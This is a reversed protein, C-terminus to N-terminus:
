DPLTVGFAAAKETWSKLRANFLATAEEQTTPEADLGFTALQAVVEPERLIPQLQRSWEAAIAPPTASSAFFGYWEKLELAPHGAAAATPVDRLVSARKAGSTILIKLAGDRNHDLLAPVSCIGAPVSGEKLAAVLRSAAKHPVCEIEVGCERAIMRSYLKFYLDGSSAGIRRREPPGAKLWAVYNAFTAIGASRPVIFAVQFLGAMLLPVLASRSDFPFIERPPTVAITTTPLFAIVSGEALAKGLFEGAPENRDNAKNEVTVRRSVRLELRPAIARAMPESVGGASFGVLIRLAREPLRSQGRVRRPRVLSAGYLAGTALLSRRLLESAM